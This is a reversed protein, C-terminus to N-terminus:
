TAGGDPEVTMSADAELRVRTGFPAGLRNLLDCLWGADVKSARNLRFRKVQLPVLRLEDLDGGQPDIRVLYLLRL